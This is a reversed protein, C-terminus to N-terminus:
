ARPPETLHGPMKLQRRKGAQFGVVYAIVPLIWIPLSALAALAAQFRQGRAAPHGRSADDVGALAGMATLAIAGLVSQWAWGFQCVNAAVITTLVVAIWWFGDATVVGNYSTAPPPPPPPPDSGDEPPDPRTNRVFLSRTQGGIRLQWGVFYAFGVAFLVCLGTALVIQRAPRGSLEMGLALLATAVASGVWYCVRALHRTRCLLQSMVVFVVGAAAGWLLASSNSLHLRQAAAAM